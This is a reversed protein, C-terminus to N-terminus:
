KKTLGAVAHLDDYGDFEDAIKPGFVKELINNLTIVGTIEEFNNVVVLLHHQHKTVADLAQHLDCSENIFAAGRKAIDIARGGKELNKLLEPLALTGVIKPATEKASGRVVPFFTFGTAHLEDMLKPGVTENEGVFRISKRPTMCSAVLQDGFTLAGFAMKLDTESIRSDALHNQYNLLELLDDKDYLTNQQFRSTKSFLAAIPGLVPRLFYLRKFFIGHESEFATLRWLWGDYAPDPLFFLLWAGVLIALAGAWWNFRVSWIVVVSSSAAGLLFLFADLALGQSAIHYISLANKSHERARRKLEVLPLLHYVRYLLIVKVYIAVLLVFM